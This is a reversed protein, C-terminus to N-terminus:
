VLRWGEKITELNPLGLARTYAKDGNEIISMAYAMACLLDGDNSTVITDPTVNGGLRENIIKCVNSIYALTNNESPPAWRSIIKDITNAGYKNIYTRMTRLAARYGYEMSVFQEFASDGSPNIKGKWASSSIRINLPNNNRYGRPLNPDTNLKMDNNNLLSVDSQQTSKKRGLLWAGGIALFTIGLAIYQQNTM